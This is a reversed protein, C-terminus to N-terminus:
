RTLALLLVLCGNNVAHLPWGPVLSGSVGRLYGALVGLMFVIAPQAFNGGFHALAFLVAPLAISAAPPLFAQARAQVYGRFFARKACPRSSSRPSRSRRWRRRAKRSSTRSGACAGASAPWSSAGARGLDLLAGHGARDPGRPPPRARGGAARDRRALRPRLTKALAVARVSRAAAARRRDGDLNPGRIPAGGRPRRANAALLGVIASSVAMAASAAVLTLLPPLTTRSADRARADDMRMIVKLIPRPTDINPRGTSLGAIAIFPRRLLGMPGPPPVRRRWWLGQCGIPAAQPRPRFLISSPTFTTSKGPM